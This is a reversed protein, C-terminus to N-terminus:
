RESALTFNFQSSTSNHILLKWQHMKTAQPSYLHPRFHARFLNGIMIYRDAKVLRVEAGELPCTKM